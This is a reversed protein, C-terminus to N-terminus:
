GYTALLDLTNDNIFIEYSTGSVQHVTPYIINGEEAGVTSVQFKPMMNAMTVGSPLVVTQSYTGLQGAVAAWSTNLLTQTSKALNKAPLSPSTVGDHTHADNLDINNELDDFWTSGRDGDTPKIRGYTLTTSM